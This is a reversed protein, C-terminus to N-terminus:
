YDYQEYRITRMEDERVKYNRGPQRYEVQKMEHLTQAELEKLAAYVPNLLMRGEATMTKIPTLMRALTTSGFDLFEQNIEGWGVQEPRRMYIVDLTTDSSPRGLCYLKLGMQTWYVITTQSDWNMSLLRNWEPQTVYEPPRVDQGDIRLAVIRYIEQYAATDLSVSSASAPYTVTGEKMFQEWAHARLVRSKVATELANARADTGTYDILAKATERVETWTM